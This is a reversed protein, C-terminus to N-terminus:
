KERVKALATRAREGGDYEARCPGPYNDFDREARDYNESDAYWELAAALEDRQAILNVERAYERAFEGCQRWVLEARKESVPEKAEELRQALSVITNSHDEVVSAIELLAAVVLRLDFTVRRDDANLARLEDVASM